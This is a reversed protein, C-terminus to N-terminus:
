PPAARWQAPGPAPPSLVLRLPRPLPFLGQLFTPKLSTTVPLEDKLSAAARSTRGGVEKGENHMCRTAWASGLTLTPKPILFSALCWPALRPLPLLSGPTQLQEMWGLQRTTLCFSVPGGLLWTEPGPCDRRPWRTCLRWLPRREMLKSCRRCLSGAVEKRCSRSELFSRKVLSRSSCGGAAAGLASVRGRASRLTGKHCSILLKSLQTSPVRFSGRGVMPVM